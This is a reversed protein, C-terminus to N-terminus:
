EIEYYISQIREEEPPYRMQYLDYLGLNKGDGFLKIRAFNVDFGSDSGQAQQAMEILCEYLFIPFSDEDLNILDEDSTPIGKWTGSSSRFLFNSYYEIEYIEGMSCRIKDVRIDTEATEDYTITIKLADIEDPDVTGTETAGNWSFKILNWGNRFSTGDAQTTATKSWYNAALDNGWVFIVNTIISADPFYVYMFFSGIEDHDSLDVATMTTNSIYGTTQGSALDFNLSAGGSVYYQTDLTLNSAGTGDASWTGNSTLSNCQHVSIPSPSINKSIRISKSMDDHRISIIDDWRDKYKDFEKAFWQNFSDGIGRNVQPRIDIVEKCDSPITYNYVDDHLADSLNQIRRTERPSIRLLLNGAARQCLNYFNKIDDLSGGHGMGILDDRCQAITKAM